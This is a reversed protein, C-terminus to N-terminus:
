QSRVIVRRHTTGADEDGGRHRQGERDDEREGADPVVGGGQEVPLREDQPDDLAQCLEERDRRRAVQDEDGPEEVPRVQLRVLLEVLREVDREVQPREDGHHGVEPRVDDPEGGRPEAAHAARRISVASSRIAQNTATAVTGAATIPASPSLTM